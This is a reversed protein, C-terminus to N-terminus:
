QILGRPGPEGWYVVDEAEGVLYLRDRLADCANALKGDIGDVVVPMRIKLRLSCASATGLREENNSPDNYAIDQDRNMSVLWGDEQHAERIYVM